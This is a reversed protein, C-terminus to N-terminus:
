CKPAFTKLQDIIKEKNLPKICYGDIGIENARQKERESLFATCAIIAIEDLENAKIKEKLVSSAEFGDMIPMSWDMFIVKYQNSRKERSEAHREMVKEIAQEGNYATDCSYGLKSLMMELATINFIDDDVVLVKPAKNIFIKPSILSLQAQSGLSGRHSSLRISDMTSKPVFQRVTEVKDRDSIFEELESGNNESRSRLFNLEPRQPQDIIWFSFKSGKNVQSEVKMGNNQEPPGLMLVLNNSIVLGLGVGQSNISNRDGLEIKEFAKFLKRKNEESIGIGTDSVEISLIKEKPRPSSTLKVKLNIEGKLTFKLANSLLNLVIQKLRNHDTCFEANEDELEYEKTLKLGKRTAQIKILNVCEELTTLVDHKEYVLRLKNASMQSFDLIDNILHLLLQNSRLAPLLYNEKINSAAPLSMLDPHELAALTFNISANLPTRLEHSVSALLRNKYENNEQLATVLNRETIDSFILALAPKERFTTFMIKIELIYNHISLPDSSDHEIHGTLVMM